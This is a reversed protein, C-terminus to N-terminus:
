KEKNLLIEAFGGRLTCYFVVNSIKFLGELEGPALVCSICPKAYLLYIEDELFLVM